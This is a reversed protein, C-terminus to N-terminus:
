LHQVNTEHVCIPQVFVVFSYLVLIKGETGNSKAAVQESAGHTSTQRASDSHNANLM